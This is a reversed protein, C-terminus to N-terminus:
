SGNAGALPLTFILFIFNSLNFGIYSFGIYYFISFIVFLIQKKWKKLIHSFPPNGFSEPEQKIEKRIETIDIVLTLVTFILVVTIVGLAVRRAASPAGSIHLWYAFTFALILAPVLIIRLYVLQRRM